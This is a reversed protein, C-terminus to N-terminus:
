KTVYYISNGFRMNVSEFKPTTTAGDKLIKSDDLFLVLNSITKELPVRDDFYVIMDTDDTNKSYMEFEGDSGILISQPKVNERTAIDVFNQLENFRKTELIYSNELSSIDRHFAYYHFYEDTTTGSIRSFVFGSSDVFYCTEEDTSEDNFGDCLVAVPIRENINVSLTSFNKIKVSITDIKNISDELASLIKSKPYFLINTKPIFYLYHGDIIPNIKDQIESSYDV